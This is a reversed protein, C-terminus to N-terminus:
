SARAASLLRRRQAAPLRGLLALLEPWLGARRRAWGVMDRLREEPITEALSQLADRDTVRLAVQVLTEADEIADIVAEVHEDPLAIVIEAMTDYDERARLVDAVRLIVEAPLRALLPEALAPDLHMAVDAVYDVSMRTSMAAGQEPSLAGVVGASVRPPLMREALPATVKMPLLRSASAIRSYTTLHDAHLRAFVALRLARVEVASFRCLFDVDRTTCRLLRALREVEATVALSL